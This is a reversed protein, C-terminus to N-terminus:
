GAKNNRYQAAYRIFTRFLVMTKQDNKATREPHWQVGICFPMSGSEIGEVIGDTSWANVLFHEPVQKVSQHHFSNTEIQGAYYIEALKTGAVLEVMHTECWDPAKQMHRVKQQRQIGTDIDQYISGGAAVAMLQIGSCIGLMPIKRQEAAKYLKIEFCDRQPLITGMEFGDLPEEKFYHPHIDGGGAFLIGDLSEAYMEEEGVASDSPLLVPLGGAEAISEAYSCKLFYTNEEMSLSTTIGILPTKM